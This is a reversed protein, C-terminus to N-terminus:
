EPLRSAALSWLFTETWATTWVLIAAKKNKTILCLCPNFFLPHLKLLENRDVFLSTELACSLFHEARLGCDAQRNRLEFLLDSSRQENAPAVSSVFQVQCSSSFQNVFVGRPHDSQSVFKQDAQLWSIGAGPLTKSSHLFCRTLSGLSNMATVARSRM